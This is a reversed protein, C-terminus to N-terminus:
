NEVYESSVVACPVHEGALQAIEGHRGQVISEAESRAQNTIDENSLKGQNSRMLKMTMENALSDLKTFVVVIPVIVVFKILNHTINFYPM